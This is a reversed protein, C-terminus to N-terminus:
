RIVCGSTIALTRIQTCRGDRATGLHGPQSRQQPIRLRDISPDKWQRSFRRITLLEAMGNMQMAGDGVLAIVPRDPHAFKAGIAYPVACGMTALTGSVSGRVGDTFRLCRAYWNTSSGSDATVIANNPLRQSLEWVIRMPNAPKASLM